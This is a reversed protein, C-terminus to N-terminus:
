ILYDVYAFNFQVNGTRINREIAVCNLQLAKFDSEAIIFRFKERWIVKKNNAYIELSADYEGPEWYCNRNTIDFLDMKTTSDANFKDSLLDLAGDETLGEVTIQQKIFQANDHSYKQWEMRHAQIASAMGSQTSVDVFFINYRHPTGEQLMFAYAMEIKPENKGIILLEPNRFANWLFAHTMGDRKRTIKISMGAVIIPRKEVILTGAVAMTPGFESYGLELKGAKINTVKARRIVSKYLAVFWLQLVGCIAITLTGYNKAYEGFDM